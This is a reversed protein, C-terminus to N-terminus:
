SVVAPTPWACHRASLVNTTNAQTSLHLPTSPMGERCLALVGPDSVIVADFGMPAVAELFSRLLGIDRNRVFGNVALYARKGHDHVTHVAEALELLTFNKSFTRLSFQKGSLYVADAGFHLATELREMDGAPAILEPIGPEPTGM